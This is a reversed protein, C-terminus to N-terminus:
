NDNKDELDWIVSSDVELAQAIRVKIQTPVAWKGSMYNNLTQKAIGVDRALDTYKWGKSRCLIAIAQRVSPKEKGKLVESNLSISNDIM